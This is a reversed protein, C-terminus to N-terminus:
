DRGFGLPLDAEDAEQSKEALEDVAQEDILYYKEHTDDDEYLDLITNLDAGDQLDLDAITELKEFMAGSQANEPVNDKWEIYEEQVGILDERAQEYESMAQVFDLHNKVLFEVAADRDKFKRASLAENIEERMEALTNAASAMDGACKQWRKTRSLPKPSKAM